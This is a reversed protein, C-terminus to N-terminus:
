DFTFTWGGKDTDVQVESAVCDNYFPVKVSEGYRLTAPIITEKNSTGFYKLNGIRCNGRNVSINNIRVTDTKATVVVDVYRNGAVHVNNYAMVTIPVPTQAGIVMRSFLLSLVPLLWKSHNM